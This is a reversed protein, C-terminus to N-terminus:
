SVRAESLAREISNSSWYNGQDHRAAREVALYVSQGLGRECVEYIEYRCSFFNEVIHPDWQGGAGQKFIEEIKSKSLGPRYRRNSMMADCSDAVALIRALLPIADGALGDPYGHGDLREHHGRVAPSLYALRPVSAVIREGIVVHKQIHGYEEATLAQPKLLVSDQSGIKGVDHLLGALYLDSVDGRSLGMEKGLRVAIRAVRESHGCTYPDKADIATSLCRITGFLTEKLNDHVRANREKELQLNWILSALRLDTVTFPPCEGLRVGVLWSQRSKETPITLAAAPVPQPPPPQSGPFESKWLGGQPLQASLMQAIQHCWFPGPQTDGVIEM